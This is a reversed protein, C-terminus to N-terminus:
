AASVIVRGTMITPHLTCVFAVTGPTHFVVRYSGGPPIRPSSFLPTPAGGPGLNQVVTHDVPDANVWQVAQGARVHVDPSQFLLARMHVTAGVRAGPAAPTGAGGVGGAQVVAQAAPTAAVPPKHPELKDRGPGLLVLAVIGAAALVVGMGVIRGVGPVMIRALAVRPM